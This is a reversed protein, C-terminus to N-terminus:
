SYCSMGGRVLRPLPLPGTLEALFEVLGDLARRQIRRAICAADLAVPRSRRLVKEGRMRRDAAGPRRRAAHKHKHTLGAPIAVAM